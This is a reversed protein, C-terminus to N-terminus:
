NLAVGGYWIETRPVFVAAVVLLLAARRVRRRDPWEAAYLVLLVVLPWTLTRYVRSLDYTILVPVTLAAQLGILTWRDRRPMTWAMWIVGVWLVNYVAWVVVTEHGRWGAILNRLGAEHIFDLRGNTDIGNGVQYWLLIVKGALLGCLAAVMPRHPQRLMVVRIVAVAALAIGGQEFHQFGLVVGAAVCVSTPAVMAVTLAAVTIIDFAGLYASGAWSQPSCFYACLFLRAAYPSAWRQVALVAVMVCVFTLAYSVLGIATATRAGVAWAIIPGLPSQYSYPGVGRTQTFPDAVMRVIEDIFTSHHYGHVLTAATLTAFTLLWVPAAFIWDTAATWPDRRTAALQNVAM